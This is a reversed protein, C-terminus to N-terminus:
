QCSVRTGDDLIHLGAERGDCAGGLGMGTLSLFIITPVLVTSTAGVIMSVIGPTGAFGEARSKRYSLFGMILGVVGVFIGVILGIVGLKKGPDEGFEIEYDTPSSGHADSASASQADSASPVDVGSDIEDMDTEDMGITTQFDAETELASEPTINEQGLASHDLQETAKKAM